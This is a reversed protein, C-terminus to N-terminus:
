FYQMKGRPDDYIIEVRIKHIGLDEEIMNEGILILTNLQSDYSAFRFVKRLDLRVKVQNGFMDVNEGMIYLLNDGLTM